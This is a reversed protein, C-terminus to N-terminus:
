EEAGTTKGAPSTWIGNYRGWFSSFGPKLKGQQFLSQLEAGLVKESVQQQIAKVLAQRKEFTLPEAATRTKIRAVFLSGEHNWLLPTLQGDATDLLAKRIAPHAGLEALEAISKNEQNTPAGLSTLDGSAVASKAKAFAAKRSEELKWAELVKNRIENLPPIAPSREEKVKLVAYADGMNQITSVYGVKLNFTERVLASTGPVDPLSTGPEDLFPKSTKTELKFQRAAAVLDGKDGTRKRIQELQEKAKSHFREDAMQKRLDEKVEEFTKIKKGELRILHIGFQTRVPESIQGPELALSADEFPKVMAGSGVFGMDGKNMKASPDESIALATANFDKGALLQPRLEQAKKMAEAVESDNEAKFLIHSSRYESYQSKKSDYAAKLAADDVKIADKLSDKDVRVYQIVRRMGVMFREGGAKMFEALKADGPDQIAAVDPRYVYSEFSLKENRIRNELNVWADDVPVRASEADILKKLRMQQRHAEEWQKITTGQALLFENIESTPKLSGDPKLFVPIQKMQEVFAKALESDTVIVEHREALEERLKEGMLQQLAQAQLFPYMQEMNMQRNGMRQIMDQISRDVDRKYIERGYVRAMVNDPAGPNSGSPVLYIVMGVLVVGMVATMPARNGKFVSRFNRLM